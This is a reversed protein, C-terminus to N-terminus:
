RANSWNGPTVGVQAALAERDVVEGGKIVMWIDRTNRIDELPDANLIVLDAWKGEEITGIEDSAGLIEAATGTAATVAALPSFGADVLEEMEAHLAWPLAPHDSGAGITVGGEHFKLASVRTFHAFRDYREKLTLPPRLARRKLYPTMLRSTEPDEFITPDDIARVVSSYAIVTPVIWMNAHRFLQVMDDYVIENTRFGSPGLHEMGDIGAAVLPLPAAIHGSAPWGRAHASRVLWAAEPWDSFLRMKLYSAGFAAMLATARTRASDGSVRFGGPGSRTGTGRFMVGGPVIRPGPWLGAEIADRHGALRAISSGMDRITTVGNYLAGPLVADDWLHTHLDMLGPIAFRGAADVVRVEDNGALTGAPGIRAIRGRETLIDFPADFNAGTGPIVRVNRILLDDPTPTRYALPWGLHEVSGTPRLIRLGEPSLYLVSGDRSPSAYLAADDSLRTPEGLSASERDFTTRWLLGAEVYVLHHDATWSLWAPNLSCESEGGSISQCLPSAPVNAQFERREGTLSVLVASEGALFLLEPPSDPSWLPAEHGWTPFADGLDMTAGTSEVISAGVPIIRLKRDVDRRDSSPTDLALEERHTFAIHVGDPSWSPGTEGGPLATIQRTSGTTLDTAYLDEAHGPGASWVVSSEDPSWSLGAANPPMATVAHPEGGVDFVWLQGLAIMAIRTGGPALALGMHGRAERETDPPTFRLRPTLTERTLRVRASFPIERPNGGTAPITWLRGSAQYLLRSADPFWRVRLPTVDEQSTLQVPEGNPEMVWLQFRSASDLAFFALLRGDPSCAPARAQLETDGLARAIGGEPSVEWLSGSARRGQPANVFVLGDGTPTWTPFSAGPGPLSDIQLDRPDGGVLDLIQIAREQAFALRRSDPSFSHATGPEETLRHVTTDVLSLRFLGEGGPREARFVISSGDPAFVPDRDESTDRVADTIPVARGGEAPLIWLQGLLDFVITHGDPSLDFALKTGESTEFDITSTDRRDPSCGLILALAVTMAATSATRSAIRTETLIDPM